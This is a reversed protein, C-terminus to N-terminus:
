SFKENGLKTVGFNAFIILFTFLDSNDISCTQLCFPNKNIKRMYFREYLFFNIVYIHCSMNITQEVEEM